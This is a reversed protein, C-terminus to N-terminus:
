ALRRLPNGGWHPSLWCHICAFQCSATLFFLPIPHASILKCYDVFVACFCSHKHRPVLALLLPLRVSSNRTTWTTYRSNRFNLVVVQSGTIVQIMKFWMWLNFFIKRLGLKSPCRRCRRSWSCWPVVLLRDYHMLIYRQSFKVELCKVARTRLAPPM